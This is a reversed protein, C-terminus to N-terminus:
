NAWCKNKVFGVVVEHVVLWANVDDVTLLVLHFGVEKNSTKKKLFGVREYNKVVAGSRFVHFAACALQRIKTKTGAVAAEAHPNQGLLHGADGPYIHFGDQKKVGGELLLRRLSHTSSLKRMFLVFTKDCLQFAAFIGM